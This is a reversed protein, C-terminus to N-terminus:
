PDPYGIPVEKFYISRAANKEKKSPGFDPDVYLKESNIEM